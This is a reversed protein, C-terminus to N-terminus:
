GFVRIEETEGTAPWIKGRDKSQILENYRMTKLFAFM